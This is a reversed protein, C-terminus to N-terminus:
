SCLGDINSDCHELLIAGSLIRSSVEGGATPAGVMNALVCHMLTPTM